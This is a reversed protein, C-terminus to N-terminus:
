PSISVRVTSIAQAVKPTCIAGTLLRVEVRTLRLAHPTPSFFFMRSAGRNHRRGEAWYRGEDNDDLDPITLDHGVCTDAAAFSLESIFSERFGQGGVHRRSRNRSSPTRQLDPRSQGAGSGHDYFQDVRSQQLENLDYAEPDAVVPSVQSAETNQRPQMRSPVTWQQGPRRYNAGSPSRQLTMQSSVYSGPGQKEHM